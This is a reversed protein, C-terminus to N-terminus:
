KVIEDRSRKYDEYSPEAEKMCNEYDSEPVRNCLVQQRKQLDYYASKNSCATILLVPSLSFLLFVLSLRKM